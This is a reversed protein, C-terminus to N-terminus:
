VISLPVWQGKKFKKGLNKKNQFTAVGWQGEKHNNSPKYILQSSNKDWDGTEQDWQKGYPKRM